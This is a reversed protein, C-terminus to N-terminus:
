LKNYTGNQCHFCHYFGQTMDLTSVDHFLPDNYVANILEMYASICRTKESVVVGAFM